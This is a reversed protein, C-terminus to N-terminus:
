QLWVLNKEKLSDLMNMIELNTSQKQIITVYPSINVSKSKQYCFITLTDNKINYLLPTENYYYGNNQNLVFEKTKDNSLIIDIKDGAMGSRKIKFYLTDTKFNLTNIEFHPSPVLESPLSLQYFIYSILISTLILYKKSAIIELM